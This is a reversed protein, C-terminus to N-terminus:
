QLEYVQLFVDGMESQVYKSGSFKIVETSNEVRKHKIVLDDDILVGYAVGGSKVMNVAIETFVGGSTCKDLLNTDCTRALFAKPKIRIERKNNVPCVKECLRCDICCGKDIEPYKFGEQDELMKICRAPCVSACATCGSCNEKKNIQIM